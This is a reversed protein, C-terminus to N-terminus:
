RSSSPAKSDAAKDTATIVSATAAIVTQSVTIPASHITRRHHVHCGGRDGSPAARNICAKGRDGSGCRCRRVRRRQCKRMMRRRDAQRGSIPRPPQIPHPAKRRRLLSGHRRRRIPRRILDADASAATSAAPSRVTKRNEAAPEARRGQRRRPHTAAPRGQAGRHQGQAARGTADPKRCRAADVAAAARIGGIRPPRRPPWRRWPRRARGSGSNGTASPQSRPRRM